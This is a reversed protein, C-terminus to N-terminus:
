LVTGMSQQPQAEGQDHLVRLAASSVGWFCGKRRVALRGPKDARLGAGGKAAASGPTGGRLYQDCAAQGTLSM